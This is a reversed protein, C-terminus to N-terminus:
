RCCMQGQVAKNARVTLSTLVTREPVSVHQLLGKPSAPGVAERRETSPSLGPNMPTLMLSVQLCRSPVEM